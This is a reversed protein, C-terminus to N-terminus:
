RVSIVKNEGERHVQNLHLCVLGCGSALGQEGLGLLCAVDREPERPERPCMNM